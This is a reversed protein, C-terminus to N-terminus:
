QVFSESKRLENNGANEKKLEDLKSENATVRTRLALVLSNGSINM